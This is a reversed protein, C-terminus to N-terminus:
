PALVSLAERAAAQQADKKSSGHGAGAPKGNLLVRVSFSRAHDPGEAALLEYVPVAAFRAQAVEQLETKYDRTFIGAPAAAASDAFYKGVVKRAAAIGGDLYVAALLAEFADALISRKARGGSKEEGKGLFLCDGLGLEAAVRALNAEDVLASRMRTLEGERAVPFSSFLLHSVLFALISDGFFELRQNDVAGGAAENARSPHTLAETLLEPDRFRYGLAKELSAYSNEPDKPV